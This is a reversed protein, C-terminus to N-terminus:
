MPAPGGGMQRGVGVPPGYFLAYQAEAQRQLMDLGGLVTLGQAQAAAMLATQAPAYVTDFLVASAPLRRLQRDSLLPPGGETGTGAMGVPTCHVVAECRALAADLEADTLPTLPNHGGV